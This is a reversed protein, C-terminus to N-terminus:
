SGKYQFVLCVVKNFDEQDGDFALIHKSLNHCALVSNGSLFLINFSIISHFDLAVIFHKYCYIGTSTIFDVVFSKPKSCAGILAEFTLLHM